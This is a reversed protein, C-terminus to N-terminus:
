DLRKEYEEIEKMMHENSITRGEKKDFIARELSQKLEFDSYEDPSIIKAIKMLEDPTFTLYKLKRYFTPMPIGTQEVIYHKKYPSKNMLDDISSLINKYEIIQSIM